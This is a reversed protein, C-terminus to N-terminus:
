NLYQYDYSLEKLYGYSNIWYYGDGFKSLLRMRVWGSYSITSYLNEDMKRIHNMFDNNFTNVHGYYSLEDDVIHIIDDDPFAEYETNEKESYHYVSSGGETVKVAKPGIKKKLSDLLGM